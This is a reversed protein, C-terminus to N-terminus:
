GLQVVIGLLRCNRLMGADPSLPKGPGILGALSVGPAWFSKYPIQSCMYIPMALSLILYKRETQSTMSFDVESM